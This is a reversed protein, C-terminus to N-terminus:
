RETAEGLSRTLLKGVKGTVVRALTFSSMASIKMMKTAVRFCLPTPGGLSLVPYEQRSTEIFDLMTSIKEQNFSEAKMSAKSKVLNM